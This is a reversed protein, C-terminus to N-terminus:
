QKEYRGRRVYRVAHGELEAPLDPADDVLHVTLVYHGKEDREVGVASVARNKMLLGSVRKKLSRIERETAM